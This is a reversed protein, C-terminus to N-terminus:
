FASADEEGFPFPGEACVAADFTPKCGRKFIPPEIDADIYTQFAVLQDFLQGWYQPSRHVRWRLGGDETYVIFDCWRRGLIEMVGQIQPMYYPPVEDYLINPCKIEIVGEDQTLGDPSCGLWDHDPHIVFGVEIVPAITLAYIGRVVPELLTGNSMAANQRKPPERHTMVRWLRRRSGILGVAEGWNSATLKGERAAFWAASRQPATAASLITQENMALFPRSM